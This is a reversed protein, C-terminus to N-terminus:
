LRQLIGLLLQLLGLFFCCVYPFSNLGCQPSVATWAVFCLDLRKLCQHLPRCGGSVEKMGGSYSKLM